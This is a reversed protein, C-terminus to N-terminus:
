RTLGMTLSPRNHERGSKVAVDKRSIAKGLKRSVVSEQNEM